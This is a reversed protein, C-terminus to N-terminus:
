TLLEHAGEEGNNGYGPLEIQHANLLYSTPEKRETIAMAM